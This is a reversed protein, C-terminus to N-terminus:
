LNKLLKKTRKRAQMQKSYKETRATKSPDNKGSRYENAVEKSM